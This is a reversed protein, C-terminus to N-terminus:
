NAQLFSGSLPQKSYYDIFVRMCRFLTAPNNSATSMQKNAGICIDVSGLRSIFIKREAAGECV